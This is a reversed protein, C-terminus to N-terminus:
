GECEYYEMYIYYIIICYYFFSFYEYQLILINIHEIRMLRLLWLICCVSADSEQELWVDDNGQRSAVRLLLPELLSALALISLWILLLLM